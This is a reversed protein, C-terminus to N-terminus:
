SPLIARPEFGNDRPFAPFKMNVVAHFFIKDGLKQNITKFDEV